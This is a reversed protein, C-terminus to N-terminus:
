CKSHTSVRMKQLVPSERDNFILVASANSKYANEVKQEYSCHGRRILAIWPEGSPPLSEGGVARLPMSCAHDSTSNVSQVHVLIGSAPGVHGESFKGLEAPRDLSGPYTTNLIAMTYDIEEYGWDAIARGTFMLVVAVTVLLRRCITTSLGTGGGGGGGLIAEARRMRELRDEPLSDAM